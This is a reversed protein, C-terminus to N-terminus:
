QYNRIIFPKVFFHQLFNGFFLKLFRLFNPTEGKIVMGVHNITTKNQVLFM